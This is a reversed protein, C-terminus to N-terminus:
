TRQRIIDEIAKIKGLLKTNNDRAMHYKPQIEDVLEPMDLYIDKYAESEGISQLLEAKYCVLKELLKQHHGDTKTAAISEFSITKVQLNNADFLSTKSFRTQGKVKSISKKLWGKRVLKLLESYIMRRVDSPDLKPDKKLALFASRVDSTTFNDFNGAEIVQAVVPDLMAVHGLIFEIIPIIPRPAKCRLM